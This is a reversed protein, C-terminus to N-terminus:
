SAAGALRHALRVAFAVALLTSNAQGTTPFVASSAVHLNTLGHVKLNCDVVSQSPDVGMRATGVQHFGDAAMEWIQERMKEPSYWYELRGINNARLSLDLLRHSEVVSDVDQDTFRLDISARPVGYSDNEQTLQIRSSPSPVQEAHYHLAYKGGQNPVLFGPKKPKRIFRDRLIRFMDVAGRPAGLVANRLHAALAYPRPGTHARRIAEPLLRRGVPPFALALFVSSLVGSRHTPDYFPPNDPWFATNLVKHELQAETTLMFRRRYFVGNADLKFDLDSFSDPDDFQISAIKGSIHGMYYRGLPGDVGGFHQPYSQQFHLLLRTTEVGGAAMIIQRAKVVRPGAPTSIALGEVTQGDRSLNIGTVTSRLSVKIRQSRVLAERHVLILRPETSWREVFDLTLGDVLSRPYPIAFSDDGCLLYKCAPKYWPRIEDATVPWVADVFDRPLWDIEDYAVCRGGWTSSTGGLARIVALEMGAHRKADVIDARSAASISPDLEIDGSELILVDCGLKEFELALAMGVPGSGIVCLDSVSDSPPLDQVIM